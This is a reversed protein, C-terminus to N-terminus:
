TLIWFIVHRRAGGYRSGSFTSFLNSPKLHQAAQLKGHDITFNDQVTINSLMGASFRTPNGSRLRGGVGVALRCRVFQVRDRIEVSVIRRVVLSLSGSCNAGIKMRRGQSAASPERNNEPRSQLSSADSGARIKAALTSERASKRSEMM